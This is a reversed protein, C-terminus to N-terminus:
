GIYAERFYIGYRHVFECALQTKGIGGLGTAAAVQGIAALEGVKLVSALYLLDESRGVFLPNHDYPMRSGLPLAAPEPLKDLPLTALHQLAANIATSSRASMPADNPEDAVGEGWTRLTNKIQWISDRAEHIGNSINPPVFSEGGYHAAQVCLQLLTRRYTSLLQYQAEIDQANPM